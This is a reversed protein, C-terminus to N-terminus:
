IKNLKDKHIIRKKNKEDIVLVNTTGKIDTIVGQKTKGKEMFSVKMGIEFEKILMERWEKTLEIQTPKNGPDKIIPGYKEQEEKKWRDAPNPPDDPNRKPVRLHKFLEAGWKTKYDGKVIKYDKKTLIGDNTTFADIIRDILQRSDLSEKKKETKKYEYNEHQIIVEPEREMLFPNIDKMLEQIKEYDKNMEQVLSIYKRMEDEDKGEKNLKKMIAKCQKTQQIRKDYFIQLQEQKLAMNKEFFLKEIRDIEENIKKQKEESKKAKDSVDLFKQLVDWNYEDNLTQKLEDISNEYHIYKPLKIIIQPGCKDTEGSGCSLVIEDKGEQFDKDTECGKCRIFKDRQTLYKMKEDYFVELKELYQDM